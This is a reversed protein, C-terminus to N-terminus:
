QETSGHLTPKDIGPHNIAFIRAEPEGYFRSVLPVELGAAEMM